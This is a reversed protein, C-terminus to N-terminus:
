IICGTLSRAVNLDILLFSEESSTAASRTALLTMLVWNDLLLLFKLLFLLRWLLCIREQTIILVRVIEVKCSFLIVFRGLRLLVGALRVEGALCTYAIIDVIILPIQLSVQVSVGDSLKLLQFL